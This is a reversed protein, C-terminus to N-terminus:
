GAEREADDFNKRRVLAPLLMRKYKDLKKILPRCDDICHIMKLGHMLEVHGLSNSVLHAYLSLLIAEQLEKDQLRAAKNCTLLDAEMTTLEGTKDLCQLQGPASPILKAVTLTKTGGTNLM